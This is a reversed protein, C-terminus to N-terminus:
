ATAYASGSHRLQQARRYMQRGLSRYYKARRAYLLGEPDQWGNGGVAHWLITVLPVLRFAEEIREASCLNCWTDAYARRLDGHWSDCEPHYTHLGDLLYQFTLFPHGLYSEALDIFVCRDADALVNGASFDGHTFSDPIGLNSLRNCVDRLTTGLTLLDNGSLVPPPSTEQQQMLEDLKEVLPDVLNVIREMRWDRCGIGLLYESKGALEAQFKGLTTVARKWREFEMVDDLRDDIHEMLWGSWDPRNAYIRPLYQPYGEALAMTVGYEPWSPDNAAKFWVPRGTTELRILNFNPNGNHQQFKGTLRFGQAEVYPQAWSILEDIWGVTAFPGPKSGAKYTQAEELCDMLLRYQPPECFAAPELSSPEVWELGDPPNWGDTRAELVCCANGNSHGDNPKEAAGVLLSPRFLAITELSLFERIKSTLKLGTRQWKPIEVEPLRYPFGVEGRDAALLVERGREGLIVLLYKQRERIDTM